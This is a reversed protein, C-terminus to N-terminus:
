GTVALRISGDVERRDATWPECKYSPAFAAIAGRDFSFGEWNHCVHFNLTFLYLITDNKRLIVAFSM